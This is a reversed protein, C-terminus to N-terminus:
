EKQKVAKVFRSWVKENSYNLIGVKYIKLGYKLLLYILVILLIISLFVDVIGIQGMMFLSPSVLCSLFPLYSIIKIFLSGDFMTSMISLYYGALLLLMIPAQIQQFDEMNTTMSALIGALLAYALFSLVMLVLTLPILYILTKLFGVQVLSNWIGMIESPLQLGGNRHSIFLGIAGYLFLLLAQFIVFLNSALVKSLLHVKPSVNSIIIEMSKTTKEECIEGGVMSVLFIILMFFPLIVTPFVTSMVLEMNEDVNNEDELVVRDIKIEKLTDQLISPNIELKLLGLQQKTTNLGQLLTQYFIGDIKKKSIMKATLGEQEEEKLILLVENEELNEQLVEEKEETKRLVVPNQQLSSLSTMNNEFLQYDKEDGIVFIVNEQDFDGGFFTIISNINCIALLTLFLFINVLVFWKSCVKKKLSMKTLYFFKRKM